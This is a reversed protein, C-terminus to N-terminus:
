KSLNLLLREPTMPLDTVPLGTADRVAALVAAAAPILSPEGIGKAGAPGAGYPEEVFYTDVKPADLITPIPYDTFNANKPVGDEVKLHEMLAWGIGQLVGGEVQGVLAARNLVRGVDHVATVRLVRTAGSFLDVEVEAVQTGFCYVSYAEGQGTAPDWRKPPPAYYGTASMDVKRRHCLATLAPLPMTDGGARVVNDALRIAAHAAGLEAAAVEIMRAKVTRAADLAANGSMITTRSAVTPGSDAVLATDTLMVHVKALPVGLERAVLMAVVTFAGQGLETGGIGLQVSGDARVHLNAASGEMHQGGAHLCCGYMQNALGIGLRTPGGKRNHAAMEARRAAFNSRALALDMCVTSPASEEIRQGSVTLDGVGLLNRRKLEPSPLELAAALREMASETAFTTQPTGFGRFAGGFLNNTYVIRTDIRVNPCGYPGLASVNSREAVVRSLGEYGGADVWIEIHAAVLQGAQNAGLRERIVMRHRKTSRVIDEHRDFVLKVPQGVLWAAMAACAAPESPYDEKGGFAGGTDCQIVRVRAHPLGLVRAVAGQVYFPCQLSGMVTMSGDAEPVAIVANPELYAHEQYDIHYTEDVTAAALAFGADTDGRIVRKHELLNGGAHILPAGPELARIPCTVVALPAHSVEVRRAARRAREATDALVIALRDGLFRAREVVFLPQDPRVCGVQNEGPVDAATYVARVGPASQAGRVDVEHVLTHPHPSTVLAAHLMNSLVIDDTYRTRGAVKRAADLREPSHGLWDSRERTTTM